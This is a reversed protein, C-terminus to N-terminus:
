WIRPARYFKRVVKLTDGKEIFPLYGVVTTEEEDTEFVAIMYSNIENRYIVEIVEGKLELNGIREMKNAKKIINCKLFFLFFTKKNKM